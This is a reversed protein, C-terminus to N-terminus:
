KALRWKSIFEIALKDKVQLELDLRCIEATLREIEPHLENQVKRDLDGFSKKWMELETNRDLTLRNLREIESEKVACAPCDTPLDPSM